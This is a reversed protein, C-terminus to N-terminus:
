RNDEWILTKEINGSFNPCNGDGAGTFGGEPACVQKCHDDYLYNYQDCCPSTIYYYTKGDVRWEWVQRPPNTVAEKRFKKIKKDICKPVKGHPKHCAAFAFVLMLVAFFRTIIM